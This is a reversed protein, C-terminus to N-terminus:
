CDKELLMAKTRVGTELGVANWSKSGIYQVGSAQPDGLCQVRVKCRM